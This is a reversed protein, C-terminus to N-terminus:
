EMGEAFVIEEGETKEYLAFQKHNRLERMVSSVDAFATGNKKNIKITVQFKKIM